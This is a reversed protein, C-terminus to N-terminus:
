SPSASDKGGIRIALSRTPKGGPPDDKAVFPPPPQGLLNPLPCLAFAALSFAALAPLRPYNGAVFGALAPLPPYSAFHHAATSEFWEILRPSVRTEHKGIPVSRGFWLPLGSLASCSPM